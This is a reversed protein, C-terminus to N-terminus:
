GDYKKYQVTGVFTRINACSRYQPHEHKTRLRYNSPKDTRQGTM